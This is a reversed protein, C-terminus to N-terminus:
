SLNKVHCLRCYELVPKEECVCLCVGEVALTDLCRYIEGAIVLKTRLNSHKRLSSLLATQFMM